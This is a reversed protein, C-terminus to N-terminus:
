LTIREIENTLLNKCKLCIQKYEYTKGVTYTSNHFHVNKTVRLRHGDILYVKNVQDNYVAEVGASETFIFDDRFLSLGITPDPKAEPDKKLREQYLREATETLEKAGGKKSVGACTLKLIKKDGKEIVSCYKKAGQTIFYTSTDEQEFVGMYHTVGQPDTAYAGKSKSLEICSNNYDTFDVDGIYKISDTDCYIPTGGQAEVIRLGVELAERARATCWVGWHYPLFGKANYQDLLEQDTKSEDPIFDNDKFLISHKLPNQVMLGYISNLRAKQRQYFVEQGEVDKLETKDSYYKNIASRIIDPLPKYRSMWVQTFCIELEYEQLIIKLDIDTLSMEFGEPISCEIVRGNDTTCDSTKLAHGQSRCKSLPIYPFGWFDDKLRLNKITVRMLLAYHHDIKTKITELSCFGIYRWVSSPYEKMLSFPYASSEDASKVNPIISDVFHRNSHVNGGRFAERLVTMVELDPQIGVMYRHCLTRVKRKIERRVFGTSTMPLTYLTDGESEIYKLLAENLGLVDNICYQKQQDTLVTWPYRVESYDFDDGSLKKHEIDMRETFKALSLNTLIYSCRFEIKDDLLAKAIKRKDMCFVNEVTFNFIGSLWQFEYSLNHVFVLVRERPKLQDSILSILTKFTDWSHGLIILDTSIAFQWVYMVAQKIEDLQSTEIDFSCICDRYLAKSDNKSGRRGQAKPATSYSNFVKVILAKERKTLSRTHRVELVQM